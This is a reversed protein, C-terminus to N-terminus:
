CTFFLTFDTWSKDDIGEYVKAIRGTAIERGNDVVTFEAGDELLEKPIFEAKMITVPWVNRPKRRDAYFVVPVLDDTFAEHFRVVRTKEQFRVGYIGFNRIKKANDLVFDANPERYAMEGTEIDYPVFPGRSFTSLVLLVLESLVFILLFWLSVTFTLVILLISILFYSGFWLSRVLPSRMWDRVPRDCECCVIVRRNDTGERVRFETEEGCYPCRFKKM